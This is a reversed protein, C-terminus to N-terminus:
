MLPYLNDEQLPVYPHHLVLRPTSPRPAHSPVSPLALLAHEELEKMVQAVRVEEEEDETDEIELTVSLQEQARAVDRAAAHLKAPSVGQTTAVKLETACQLLLEEERKKDKAQALHRDLVRLRQLSAALQARDRGRQLLTRVHRQAEERRGRQLAWRAEQRAKEEEQEFRKVRMERTAIEYRLNRTAKALRSARSGM